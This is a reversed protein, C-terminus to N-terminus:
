DITTFLDGCSMAMISFLFLFETQFFFPRQYICAVFVFLYLLYTIKKKKYRWGYAAFLYMYLIVFLLGYLVITNLLSADGATAKIFDNTKGMGFFFTSTGLVSELLYKTNDTYRNDGAFSGSDEDWVFRSWLVEKLLDDNLSLIVLLSVLIIVFIGIKKNKSITLTYISYYVAVIVYYFFSMTLISTIFVTLYRKDKLNFKGITLVLASITGIVGPEDFPGCFRELLVISNPRVLLPYVIYNHSKLENLPPIVGTSQVVGVISLIWIIGSIGIVISYITLFYDYTTKAFREKAFPLFLLCLTGLAGLVNLREYLISLLLLLAFLIFLSGRGKTKIDVNPIFLLLLCFGLVTYLPTTSYYSWMFYPDLFLFIIVAVIFASLKKDRGNDNIKVITGVNNFDPM